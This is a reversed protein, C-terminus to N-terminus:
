PRYLVKSSPGEGHKLSWVIRESEIRGMELLAVTTSRKTIAEVAHAVVIAAIRSVFGDVTAVVEPVTQTGHVTANRQRLARRLLRSFRQGWQDIRRRAEKTDRQWRAAAKVGRREIQRVKPVLPHIDHAERLFTGLFVSFNGRGEEILWDEMAPPREVEAQILIRNVVNALQFLENNFEDVAWFARLYRSVAENWHFSGDSVPLAREFARVQLVLRQAPDPQDRTAEYWRVEEVALKAASDGEAVLAAFDPSLEELAEGTGEILPNTFRKIEEYLRPDAFSLTGSWNGSTEDGDTIKGHYISIGDLLRWSSGGIRFTGAEVVATVLEKAWVEASRGQAGPTRNPEARPGLLEVRAYVRHESRDNIDFYLKLAEEDLETPLELGERASFFSEDTVAEPWLRSSFFQVQGVRLADAPLDADAFVFWAVRAADTSPSAEIVQWDGPDHDPDLLSRYRSKRWTWQHGLSEDLERLIVARQRTQDLDASGDYGDVADEWAPRLNRAQRLQEILGNAATGLRVSGPSEGVLRPLNALDEDKFEKLAPQLSQRLKPGMARLAEQLDDLLSKRDQQRPPPQGSAISDCVAVVERLAAIPTLIFPFEVPSSELYSSIAEARGERTEADGVATLSAPRSNIEIREM